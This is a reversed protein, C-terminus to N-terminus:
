PLAGEGGRESTSGSPLPFGFYLVEFSRGTIRSSFHEARAVLVADFSSRSPSAISPTVMWLEGEASRARLYVYPGAAVREEVEVSVVLRESLAYRALPPGAAEGKRRPDPQPAALAYSVAVVVTAVGIAISITAGFIRKKM